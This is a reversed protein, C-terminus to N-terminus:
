MVQAEVQQQRKIEREASIRNYKPKFGFVYVILVAISLANTFYLFYTYDLGQISSNVTTNVSVGCQSIHIYKSDPQKGFYPASFTLVSGFLEGCTYLIGSCTAVAIPYTVEVALEMFVPIQIIAFIAYSIEAFAVLYPQNPIRFVELILISCLISIGMTFKSVEEFWKTRDVFYGVFIGIIMGSLIGISGIIGAYLQSYGYPCIFQPYLVLFSNGMGGQLMWVVCLFLFRWNRLLKKVGPLTKMGEEASPSPPVTPKKKWVGFVTMAMAVFSLVTTAILLIPLNGTSQVIATSVLMSAGNGLVGSLTAISNALVRENEAFWVSALKAPSILAYSQALAITFQGIIATVYGLYPINMPLYASLLRISTGLFNLITGLWLAERLSFTDMVYMGLPAGVVGGIFYISSIYNIEIETVQYYESAYRYVSAFTLLNIGHSFAFLALSTLIYWRWPHPKYIPQLLPISDNINGSM